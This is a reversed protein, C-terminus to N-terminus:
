TSAVGMSSYGLSPRIFIKAACSERWTVLNLSYVLKAKDQAHWYQNECVLTEFFYRSISPNFDLNTCLEKYSAYHFNLIHTLDSPIPQHNGKYNALIFPKGLASAIGIETYVNPKEEALRNDFICFDCTRIKEIIDDFFGVAAMDM